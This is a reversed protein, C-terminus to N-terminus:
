HRDRTLYSVGFILAVLAGLIRAPIRFFVDYVILSVVHNGVASGFVLSLLMRLVTVGGVAVIIMQWWVSLSWFLQVAVPWLAQAVFGLVIFSFGIGLLRRASVLGLIMAIAGVVLVVPLAEDPLFALLASM